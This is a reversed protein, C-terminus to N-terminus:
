RNNKRFDMELLIDDYASELAGEIQDKAWELQEETKCEELIDGFMIELELTNIKM